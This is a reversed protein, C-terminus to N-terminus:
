IGRVSQIDNGPLSLIVRTGRGPESEVQIEGDMAEILSKAISLGLGAGERGATTARYFREFVHPLHDPSIGSGDDAVVLRVRGGEVRSEIWIHGGRSTHRMANDLLILLVQRLRFPDAHVRGQVGLVQLSVERGQAARSVERVLASVIEGALFDQTELPVTRADLRSLLLLDEVLRSMHDVEQLIDALLGPEEAQSGTHRRAVEASARLLTLPARLEHSANAVFDQQREWALQAPRLSRGALAWSGIGILLVAFADLVLLGMSLDRLIQDQDSLVRGAQLLVPGSGGALRVTLLRIRLGPRLTVTRLDRGLELAATAAQPNPSAPAPATNLGQVLRGERDLPLVYIAALESDYSSEGGEAEASVPTPLSVKVSATKQSEPVENGTEGEGNGAEGEGSSAPLRTQPPLPTAAVKTSVAPPALSIANGGPSTAVTTEQTPVGVLSFELSIKRDLALDTTVQFYYRVISYAGVGVLSALAVGAGMFLLTLKWRLSRLPQRFGMRQTRRPSPGSHSSDSNMRSRM